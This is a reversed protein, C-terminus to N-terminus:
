AKKTWTQWKEYLSILTIRNTGRLFSQASVSWVHNMRGEDSSTQKSLVGAKLHVSSQSIGIIDHM